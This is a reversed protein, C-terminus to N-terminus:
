KSIEGTEGVTTNVLNINDDYMDIFVELVNKRRLCYWTLDRPITDYVKEINIFVMHLKRDYERYKVQLLRICFM